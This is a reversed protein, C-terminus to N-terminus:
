LDFREKQERSMSDILHSYASKPFRMAKLKLIMSLTMIDRNPTSSGLKKVLSPTIKKSMGFDIVYLKKGKTMYNLPNPDGHFIGVEDLQDYLKLLQKQNDISVHKESDVDILHKDLKEMLIYKRDSDVDIVKPCAKVSSVLRQIEAEEMIKKSSKRTSFQKLAYKNNVSFTKADKGSEGLQKGRIYLKDKEDLIVKIMDCKKKCPRLKLKKMQIRLEDVSWKEIESYDM